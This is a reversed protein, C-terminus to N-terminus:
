CWSRPAASGAWARCLTIALVLAGFYLGWWFNTRAEHGSFTAPRWLEARVNIANHTRVRVYVELNEQLDFPMAFSTTRLPRDSFPRHYGLEHRRLVTGGRTFWVDVRELDPAGLVLVWRGTGDVAPQLRIRFWNAGTGYGLSRFQPLPTYRGAVAEDFSLKGGPDALHELRGQLSLYGDVAPERPEDGAAFAACAMALLSGALLRLLAHVIV